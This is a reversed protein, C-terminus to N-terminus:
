HVWDDTGSKKARETKRGGEIVQFKQLKKEIRHRKWKLLMRRMGGGRFAMFSWAGGWAFFALSAGLDRSYLLFLFTLLGTGWALLGARVPVVFMLLFTAGPNMFGFLAVLAALLPSIGLYVGPHAILGAAMAVLSVAVSVGWCTLIAQVFTRRGLMADLPALLFFLILWDLLATIPTPGSLLFATFVQWPAFGAGFPQWALWALVADGVLLQVVYIAFLGVLVNRTLPTWNDGLNLGPIGSPQM